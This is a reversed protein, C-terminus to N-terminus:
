PLSRCHWHRRWALAAPADVVGKYEAGVWGTYGSDVLCSFIGEFDLSSVGPAGREPFDGVQVHTVRNMNRALAEPVNEGAKASHYTDFQMRVHDCGVADLIRAADNSSSIITGPLDIENIFEVTGIVGHKELERGARELNRKMTRYALDHSITETVHAAGLNLMKCGLCNAMSIMRGLESFYEDEKEPNAILGVSHRELSGTPVNILVIDVKANRKQSLWADLPQAYPKQIEVGGFSDAAAAVIREEVPLGEYLFELSASYRM